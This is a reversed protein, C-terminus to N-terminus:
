RRPRRPTRRTRGRVIPSTAGLFKALRRLPQDLSVPEVGPEWWVGEVRLVNTKRDFVPEIRGVIRDGRLIPLVYYGYERKAKPVYMELRYHFGFLAEARARDHILRDFPSLFTTRRQPVASLDADPHIRLKGRELWVGLSRRRKEAILRQATPWPITETAPYVREALDWLRHTGARGAVAIEGRVALIELMLRLPGRGWWAHREADAPADEKLNRSLLPGNRELERLLYRRFRANETLFDRVWQHRKSTGDRRRQRMRARQLPLDEIPYVFADYEFLKREEWLLRDLEGRDYPGLRSWLVLHQPPAVTSIPDLQLFGLRRVTELM